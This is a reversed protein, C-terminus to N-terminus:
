RKRKKYSSCSRYSKPCSRISKRHTKLSIFGNEKYSNIQEKNIHYVSNYVELVKEPTPDNLIKLATENTIGAFAIVENM